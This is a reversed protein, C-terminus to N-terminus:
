PASGPRADVPENAVRRVELGLTYGVKHCAREFEWPTWDRRRTQMFDVGEGAGLYTEHGEFFRELRPRFSEDELDLVVQGPGEWLATGVKRRRQEFEFRM